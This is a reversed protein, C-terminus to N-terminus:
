FSYTRRLADKIFKQRSKKDKHTHNTAERKKNTGLPFTMMRDGFLLRVSYNTKHKKGGIYTTNQYLRM